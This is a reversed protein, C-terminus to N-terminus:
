PLTSAGDGAIHHLLLLVTHHDPSESFLVTRLPPETALDFCHRVAETLASGPEALHLM